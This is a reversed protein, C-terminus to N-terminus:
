FIEEAIRLAIVRLSTLHSSPPHSYLPAPLRGQDRLSFLVSSLRPPLTYSVCFTITVAKCCLIDDAVGLESADTAIARDGKTDRDVQNYVLSLYFNFCDERAWM